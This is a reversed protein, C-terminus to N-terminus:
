PASPQCSISGLCAPPLCASWVGRGEWWSIREGHLGWAPLLVEWCLRSLDTVTQRQGAGGGPRSREELTM